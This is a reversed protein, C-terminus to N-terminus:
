NKINQEHFVIQNNYTNEYETKFYTSNSLDPLGDIFGYIIKVINWIDRWGSPYRNKCPGFDTTQVIGVRNDSQFNAISTASFVKNRLIDAYLSEAHILLEKVNISLEFASCTMWLNNGSHTCLNGINGIIHPRLEVFLYSERDRITSDEYSLIPIIVGHIKGRLKIKMINNQNTIQSVKTPHVMHYGVGSWSMIYGKCSNDIISCAANNNEGRALITDVYITSYFTQNNNIEQVRCQREVWKLNILPDQAYIFIINSYILFFCKILIKSIKM